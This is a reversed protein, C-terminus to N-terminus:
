TRIMREIKLRICNSLRYSTLNAVNVSVVVKLSANVNLEVQIICIVASDVANTVRNSWPRFVETSGIIAM